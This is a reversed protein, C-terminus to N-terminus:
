ITHWTGDKRVSVTAAEKWTGDKKVYIYGSKWAGSVKVFVPKLKWVAYLTTNSSITINGSPLYAATTASASTSWGLFDYGTRTPITAPITFSYSTTANYVTASQSSPVGSGGNGNYSLALTKKWIAYLTAGANASYTAGSAYQATTANKNTNWGVFTYGSRTPKTSSLTLNENHWKTQSSISGSGGNMNYSVTYSTKAPITVTVSKTLTTTNWKSASAANTAHLSVKFTKTVATHGKTYTPTLEADYGGFWDETIDTYTKLTKTVSTVGTASGTVAYSVNVGSNVQVGPNVIYTVSTDNNSAESYSLAGRFQKAVSSGSPTYSPSWSTYVTAM